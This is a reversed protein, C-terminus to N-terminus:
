YKSLILYCHFIAPYLLSYHSSCRYYIGLFNNKNTYYRTKSGNCGERRM